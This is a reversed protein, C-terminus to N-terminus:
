KWEANARRKAAKNITAVCHPCWNADVIDSWRLIAGCPVHEFHDHLREGTIVSYMSSDLIDRHPLVRYVDDLRGKVIREEKRIKM